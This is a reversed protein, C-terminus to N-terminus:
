SCSCVPARTHSSSSSSIRLIFTAIATAAVRPQAAALLWSGTGVAAALSAQVIVRAVM